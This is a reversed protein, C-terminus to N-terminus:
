FIDHSISHCGLSRTIVSPDATTATVRFSSARSRRDATSSCSDGPPDDSWGGSGSSRSRTRPVDAADSVERATAEGLDVLAVYTRAAYESLGPHSNRSQRRRPGTLRIPRCTYAFQDTPFQWPPCDRCVTVSLNPGTRNGHAM